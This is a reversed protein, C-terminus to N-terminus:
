RAHALGSEFLSTLALVARLVSGVLERPNDCSPVAALKRTLYDYLARLDAGVTAGCDAVSRRLLALVASARCVLDEADARRQYDFQDMADDLYRVADHHLSLAMARTSQGGATVKTYATAAAACNTTMGGPLGETRHM